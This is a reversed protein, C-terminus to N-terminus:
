KQVSLIGTKILYEIGSVFEDDSLSDESWWKANNKIWSPIESSSEASTVDKVSIIDEKVLFELGQVFDDDSIQGNSWWSASSKVWNPIEKNSEQPTEIRLINEFTKISTNRELDWTVIQVSSTDMPKQFKVKLQLVGNDTDKELIQLSAHSLLENPDNITTLSDKEYIISTLNNEDMVLGGFDFLVESHYVNAIGRDEYLEISLVLEM